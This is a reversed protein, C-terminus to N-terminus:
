KRKEMKIMVEQEGTTCVTTACDKGSPVGVTGTVASASDVGVSTTGDNVAVGIVQLGRATSKQIM